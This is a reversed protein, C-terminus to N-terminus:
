PWQLRANLWFYNVKNYHIGVIHLHILWPLRDGISILWAWIVSQKGPLGAMQMYHASSFFTALHHHSWSIIHWVPHNCIYLLHQESARFKRWFRWLLCTIGSLLTWPALMLCMQPWCSGPPDWTPGMFGAIQSLKDMLAFYPTDTTIRFDSESEAVTIVSSYSSNSQVINASPHIMVISQSACLIITAFSSVNLM